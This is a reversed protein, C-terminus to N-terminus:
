IRTIIEEPKDKEFDIDYKSMGHIVVRYLTEVINAGEFVKKWDMSCLEEAEEDTTCRIKIGHNATKQARRIKVQEKGAATIAQQMNNTLAEVSMNALQEKMNDNVDRTTLMVETKAAPM